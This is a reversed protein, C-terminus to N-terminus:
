PLQVTLGSSPGASLGLAVDVTTRARLADLLPQPAISAGRKAQSGARPSNVTKARCIILNEIGDEIARVCLARIYYRNFEDEALVDAATSPMKVLTVAGGPKPREDHTNFCNWERLSAALTVESGKRISGKLLNPYDDQGQESLRPSLFLSGAEIDKEVERLMLQRTREDLNRFELAM